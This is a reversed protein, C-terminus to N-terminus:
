RNGIARRRQLIGICGRSRRMCRVPSGSISPCPRCVRIRPSIGCLSRDIGVNKGSRIYGRSGRNPEGSTISRGSSDRIIAGEDLENVSETEVSFRYATWARLRSAFYSRRNVTSSSGDFTVRFSSNGSPADWVFDIWTEEASYRLNSPAPVLAPTPIHTATPPPCARAVTRIIPVLSM